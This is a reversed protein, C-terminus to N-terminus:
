KNCDVTIAKRFNIDDDDDDDDDDDNSAYVM